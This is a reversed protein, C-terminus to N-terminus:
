ALKEELWRWRSGTPVHTEIARDSKFRQELVVSSAKSSTCLIRAVREPRVHGGRRGSIQGPARSAPPWTASRRLRRTARSYEIDHPRASASVPPPCLTRAAQLPHARPARHCWCRGSTPPARARDRAPLTPGNRNDTAQINVYIWHM